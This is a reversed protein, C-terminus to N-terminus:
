IWMVMIVMVMVMVMVKVMVKVMIVLILLIPLIGLTQAKEEMQGAPPACSTDLYLPSGQRPAPHRALRRLICAPPQNQWVCRLM